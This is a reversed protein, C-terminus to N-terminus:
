TSVQWAFLRSKAAWQGAGDVMAGLFYLTSGDVCAGAINGAPGNGGTGFGFGPLTIPWRSAPKV